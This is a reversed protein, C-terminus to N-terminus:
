VRGMEDRREGARFNNWLIRSHVGRGAWSMSLMWPIAGVTAWRTDRGREFRSRMWDTTGRMDGGASCSGTLWFFVGRGLVRWFLFEDDGGRWEGGAYAMFWARSAGGDIWADNFDRRSFFDWAARPNAIAYNALVIGRWLNNVGDIRGRSFFADWEEQVFAPRRVYGTPALIPIMHIGQVAEISPDFFTTHDAKNEFLIGAVKNGIFSSPQVNNDRAM